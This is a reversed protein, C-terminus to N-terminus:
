VYKSTKVNVKRPLTVSITCGKGEESKINIKGGHALIIIRAYHLGQGYGKIKRNNQHDGRNFREFIHKLNKSSIGLGNDTINIQIHRDDPELCTIHIEVQNGSYKLANDLLNQFVAYLFHYDGTIIGNNWSFDTYIDIHKDSYTNWYDKQTLIALMDQIDFERINLRLGHADTSQLLMRNISQLMASLQKQGRELFETQKQAPLKQLLYCVKIQNEIPHKLDHVLNNIFLERYEGSKKENRITHYFNLICITILVSITITLIIQWMAAGIFAIFPYDYTAYLTDGSIFGLPECYESPLHSVQSEEPYSDKIQGCSDQIIFQISFPKCYISRYKTQLFTYFNKLTWKQSDRMDYLSKENIQRIDDKENLQFSEKKQDIYYILANQEANYSLIHGNGTNMSKMCFEYLTENIFSNQRHIYQIHEEKYLRYLHIFQNCLVACVCLIIIYRLRQNM